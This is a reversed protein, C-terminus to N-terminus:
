REHVLTRRWAYCRTYGKRRRRVRLVDLSKRRLLVVGRLLVMGGLLIVRLLLLFVLVHLHHWLVRIRVWTGAVQEGPVMLLQEQAVVQRLFLSHRHPVLGIGLVVVVWIKFWCFPSVPPKQAYILLLSRVSGM